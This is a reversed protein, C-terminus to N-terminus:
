EEGEEYWEKGSNELDMLRGCNPCFKMDKWERTFYNQCFSCVCTKYSGNYNGEGAILWKATEEEYEEKLVEDLDEVDVIHWEFGDEDTLWHREAEIVDVVANLTKIAEIARDLAHSKKMKNIVLSPQKDIWDDIKELEEIVERDESTM